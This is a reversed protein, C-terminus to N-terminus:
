RERHIEILREALTILHRSSQVLGRLENVDLQMVSTYRLPDWLPDVFFQNGERVGAVARGSGASLIIMTRLQCLLEIRLDEEISLPIFTRTGFAQCDTGDNVVVTVTVPMPPSPMVAEFLPQDLSPGTGNSIAWEYHLGAQNPLGTTDAHFSVKQGEIAFYFGCVTPLPGVIRVARSKLRNLVNRTIIEVHTENGSVLVRAWDVTAATFVIGKNDYLGMTAHWATIPHGDRRQESDDPDNWGDGLEAIGLIVFNHPTYDAGTPVKVGNYEVFLAGDCEYGVLRDADGFFERDSLGTGQYVWHDSHQVTYGVATRQGTWWGAANRYSVGTLKNEENSRYWKDFRITEDGHFSKDCRIATNNDEVHVRWWCTNGSFFAVNGKNAIFNEVNQRMEESWYEDHGVSLLLRYSALFNDVNEHVDLDTCYDVAYGEGELWSIFAADWHAFTQRPSSTDYEDGIFNDWPTGGTGGGPRRYTFKAANGYLSNNPGTENYAQYTFLPVKYLICATEGPAPSLVVFLAKAESGDPTSVDPSSTEFGHEDGEFFMAIYAGSPWDEPIPFEYGLWGWDQDPPGDLFSYGTMWDSSDMLDLNQGQRYFNVRFLPQNTSVHLVLTDGPRVSPTEPYAKIM